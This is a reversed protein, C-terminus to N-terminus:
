DEEEHRNKIHMGRSKTDRDNKAPPQVTKATKGSQGRVGRFEELTQMCLLCLNGKEVRRGCRQCVLVPKGGTDAVVLRGERIWRMVKSEEVKTDEVLQEVTAGPYNRLYDKVQEYQEEELNLCAPCLNRVRLMFVKGCQPCNRLDGM